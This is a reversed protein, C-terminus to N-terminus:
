RISNGVQPKDGFTCETYDKAAQNLFLGRKEAKNCDQLKRLTRKDM